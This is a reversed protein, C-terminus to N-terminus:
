EKSAAECRQRPRQRSGSVAADRRIGGFGELFRFKAGCGV